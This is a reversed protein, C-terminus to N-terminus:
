LRSPLAYRIVLSAGAGKEPGRVVNDGPKMAKRMAGCCAPMRHDPGPYGGVRRHLASASLEIASFGLEEAASLLKDLQITFEESTPSM